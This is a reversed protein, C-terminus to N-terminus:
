GVPIFQRCDGATGLFFCVGIFTLFLDLTSESGVFGQQRVRIDVDDIVRQRVVEVGFPGDLRDLRALVNEAFLRQREAQILHIGDCLRGSPISLNDGLSKGVTGVRMHKLDLLDNVAALQALDFKHM